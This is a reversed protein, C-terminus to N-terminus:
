RCFTQLLLLLASFATLGLIASTMWCMKVQFQQNDQNTSKQEREHQLREYLETRYLKGADTLAEGLLMGSVGHDTHVNSSTYIQNIYKQTLLFDYNWQRVPDTTDITNTTGQNNIIEEIIALQAEKSYTTM